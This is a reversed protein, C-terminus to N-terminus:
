SASARRAAPPELRPEWRLRATAFRWFGVLTAWNMLALAYPVTVFPVRARPDDRLVHGELALLCLGLEATLVVVWAPEVVALGLSSALAVAFLLPSLLRLVKHSVTQLWLRNARPSLLWRHRAFLQFNGGITRVKRRFEDRASAAVRDFARAAPEFLVRYGRRVVRMPGLVDDLLTDDPLSRYLRRRLAWIAGSVGITSDVRSEHGRIFKEYRWYFGIGAGAAETHDPDDTLILDGSVAGVRPDSFPLVLRRLADVAFRQRADALVLIRGSARAALDNLVAAKGRGEAFALVRVGRGAFSSAVEATADTSGDSGVLIELRRRPYDLGLLNEIRRAITRQENRAVVLVSVPPAIPERQVPRPSLRAWAWVLLPYGVYVYGLLALSMWFALELAATM